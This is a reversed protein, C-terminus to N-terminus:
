FRSFALAIDAIEIREAIEQIREIKIIELTVISAANRDVIRCCRRALAYYTFRLHSLRRKVNQM